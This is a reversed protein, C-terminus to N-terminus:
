ILEKVVENVLRGDARGKLEQMLTRMLLGMQSKDHVDLRAMAARAAVEIEARSMQQPLYTELIALEAQEIEVLDPRGGRGFEEISDRHQKAERQIVALTEADDPVRGLEKELNKAAALVMRLTDRRVTDHTKMAQQMEATIQELLTM